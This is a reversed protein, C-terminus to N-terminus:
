KKEIIRDSNRLFRTASCYAQAFLYRGGSLLPLTGVQPGCSVEGPVGSVGQDGISYNQMRAAHNWGGQYKVNRGAPRPSVAKQGWQIQSLSQQCSSWIPLDPMDTKLLCYVFFYSSYLMNLFLGKFCCVSLYPSYVFGLVLFEIIILSIVTNLM